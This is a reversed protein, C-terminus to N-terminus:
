TWKRKKDCANGQTANGQVDLKLQRNELWSTCIVITISCFFPFATDPPHTIQGTDLCFAALFHGTLDNGARPSICKKISNHTVPCFAYVSYTFDVVLAQLKHQAISYLFFM